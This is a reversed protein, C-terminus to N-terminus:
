EDVEPPIMIVPGNIPTGGKGTLEVRKPAEINIGKFKAVDRAAELAARWDPLGTVFNSREVSERMIRECFAALKLQEAALDEPSLHLSRSAEAALQKIRGESIGWTRAISLRMGYGGLWDGDSMRTRIYHIRETATRLVPIARSTLGQALGQAEAAETAEQARQNPDVAPCARLKEKLSRQTRKKRGAM